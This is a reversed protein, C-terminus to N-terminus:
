LRHAAARSRAGARRGRADRPKIKDDFLDDFLRVDFVTCPRRCSATSSSTSATRARHQHRAPQQPGPHLPHAALRPPRRGGARREDGQLRRRRGGGRHAQHQLRRGLGARQGDDRRPHRGERLQLLDLLRVQGPLRRRRQRPQRRGHGALRGEDHRRRRRHLDVPIEEPRRPDSGDNPMPVRTSAMASSTAPARSSRRGCAMSRTSREAIEIIKDCKMVDLPHARRPTNAKDNIFLYRGDYTGDTFSM